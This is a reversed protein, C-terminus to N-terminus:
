ELRWFADVDRGCLALNRLRGEGDRCPTITWLVHRTVGSWSRQRNEFTYSTTASPLSWLEFAERTRELDEPHVFELVSRGLCEERSVGFFRQSAENVYTIAAHPDVVLMLDDNRDVFARFAEAREWPERESGPDEDNRM